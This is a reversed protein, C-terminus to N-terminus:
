RKRHCGHQPQRGNTLNSAAFYCIYQVWECAVNRLAEWTNNDVADAQFVPPNQKTDVIKRPTFPRINLHSLVSRHAFYALCIRHPGDFHGIGHKIIGGRLIVLSRPGYAAQVGLEPLRLKGGSYIGLTVLADVLYESSNADCHNETQKNLMFAYGFFMTTIDQMRNKILNYKEKAQQVASIMTGAAWPEVCGVAFNVM